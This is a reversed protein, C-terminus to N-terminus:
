DEPEDNCRIWFQKQTESAKQKTHQADKQKWYQIATSKNQPIAIRLKGETNSLVDEGEPKFKPQSPYSALGSIPPMKQTQMKAENIANRM